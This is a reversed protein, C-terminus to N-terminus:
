PLKHGPISCTPTEGVAGITYVGGQPCHPFQGNRGLYPMLDAQTPVDGNKKGNELAWQQKAADIMRLNNICANQQSVAHAKVFNPIAIAALMGPVAVAPLLVMNAESQSSNGVTQCGNETNLGVAYAHTARQAFLSQMWEAQAPNQGRTSQASIVQKQIQAVTRGFLESMYSFQNGQDPIGQSLRKFEATSKLGPKQGSKVALSQEVIADSSGIFLYGGGTAITPRLNIALPMPVPMTRMKLGDKDGNIVQQNKKLETDVRNFITDDNIKIVLLLGPEPINILGSPLPIPVNNSEDLTLVLGFEGGLSNIVQDWKLQTQQEFQAPLKDLFAQAQPFKSQAVEQQTVSWLLPLDADMFIALATNAPLFDLGTLTHPQGGCLRWLFGDGQGPYHHLLFKNRYLGKEIEISSMGVGSINEVGSDRILSSLLNFGKDENARNADSLDPMTEFKQRWSETRTSLNQLWQATGLYLFFNGGPDLQSTVETFSTKDASVIAPAAPQARLCQVPAILAALILCCNLLHKKKM